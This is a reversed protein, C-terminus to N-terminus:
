LLISGELHTEVLVQRVIVKIYARAGFKRVTLRTFFVGVFSFFLLLWLLWLLLLCVCVGFLFCFCKDVDDKDEMKQFYETCFRSKLVSLYSLAM